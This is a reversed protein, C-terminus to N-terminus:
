NFEDQNKSPVQGNDEQNRNDRAVHEQDHINEQQNGHEKERAIKAQKRFSDGFGCQRTRQEM